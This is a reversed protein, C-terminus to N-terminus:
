KRVGKWTEKLGDGLELHAYPIYQTPVKNKFDPKM